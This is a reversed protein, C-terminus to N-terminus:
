QRKLSDTKPQEAPSLKGKKSKSNKKPPLIPKNATDASPLTEPKIEPLTTTKATDPPSVITKVSPTDVPSNATSTKNKKDEKQSTKVIVEKQKDNTKKSSSTDAAIVAAASDAKYKKTALLISDIMASDTKYDSSDSGATKQTDIISFTNETSDAPLQIEAPLSSYYQAIKFIGFACLLIVVAILSTLITKKSAKFSIPEQEHRLLVEVESWDVPRLDADPTKLADKVFNDFQNNTPSSNM